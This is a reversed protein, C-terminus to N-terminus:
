RKVKEDLGKRKERIADVRPDMVTRWMHPCLSIIFSMVYDYPHMPANNFM